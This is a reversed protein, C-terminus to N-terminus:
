NKEYKKKFLDFTIIIFAGCFISIDAVNFAPYHWNKIHFDLFDVVGGYTIRDITNGIAGAIILAYGFSNYKNEEKLFLYSVFIVIFAVLILIIIKANALNALFGFSVGENLVLTLSFFPLVSQSKFPTSLLMKLIFTKTMQDLVIFAFAFMLNILVMKKNKKFNERIRKM